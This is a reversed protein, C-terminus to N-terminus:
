GKRKFIILHGSYNFLGMLVVLIKLLRKKM